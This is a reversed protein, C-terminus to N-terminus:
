CSEEKEGYCFIYMYRICMQSGGCSRKVTIVPIIAFQLSPYLYFPFPFLCLMFHFYISKNENGIIATKM